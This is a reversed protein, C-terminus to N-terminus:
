GREFFHPLDQFASHSDAFTKLGEDFSSVSGSKEFHDVSHVSADGLESRQAILHTKVEEDSGHVLKM